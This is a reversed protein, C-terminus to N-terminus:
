LPFGLLVGQTKLDAVMGLPPAPFPVSAQIARKVEQDFQANNSTQKFKIGVLQGSRDIWIQVQASFPQDQLYRPLEWHEKLHILLQDFYETENSTKADGSTSSGKSIVNGRIPEDTQSEKIKELAKIRNLANKMREKVKKQEKKSLAFDSNESKSIAPRPKQEPETAGSKQPNSPLHVSEDVRHRPLDVLDVRISPAYPLPKPSWWSQIGIILFIGLHLFVSLSLSLKSESNM